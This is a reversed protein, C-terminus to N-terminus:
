IWVRINIKICLTAGLFEHLFWDKKAHLINRNTMGRIQEQFEKRNDNIRLGIDTIIKFLKGHALLHIHM